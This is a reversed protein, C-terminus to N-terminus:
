KTPPKILNNIAAMVNNISYLARGRGLIARVSSGVLFSFTLVDHISMANFRM